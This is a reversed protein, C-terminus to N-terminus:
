KNAQSLRGQSSYDATHTRRTHLCTGGCMYQIGAKFSCGWRDKTNCKNEGICLGKGRLVSFGGLCGNSIAKKLWVLHCITSFKFGLFRLAKKKSADKEAPTETTPSQTQYMSANVNPMYCFMTCHSLGSVTQQRNFAHYCKLCAAPKTLQQLQNPTRCFDRETMSVPKM